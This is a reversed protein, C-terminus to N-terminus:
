YKGKIAAQIIDAERVEMLSEERHNSPTVVRYIEPLLSDIGEGLALQKSFNIYHPYYDKGTLFLDLGTPKYYGQKAPLFALNSEAFNETPVLSVEKSIEIEGMEMFLKVFKEKIHTLWNVQNFGGACTLGYYLLTLFSVLSTPYIKKQKLSEALADPNLALSFNNHKLFSGERQLHLRKGGSIGWFLFSGKHSNTFAGLSGQFYKEILDWGNPTFFIKYLAHQPQNAVEGLILRTVLDELPVYIVKPASPFIKQWLEYSVRCAQAAFDRNQLVDDSGFVEELVNLLNVQQETTLFDSQLINKKVKLIDNRGFAKIDLVSHTKIKDPFFSFRKHGGSKDTLLLCGPWSSNNLSVGATPLCILYDQKKLSFVLNSNIFFPHNLIGHHDITSVLSTDQFQQAAAEAIERPYQELLVKRLYSAFIQQRPVPSQVQWTQVYDFLSLKGYKSYIGALVKQKSLVATRLKERQGSIDM